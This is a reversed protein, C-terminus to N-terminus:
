KSCDTLKKCIDYTKLYATTHTALDQFQESYHFGIDGIDREANFRFYPFKQDAERGLYEHTSETDTAIGRLAKGMKLLAKVGPPINAMTSWMPIDLAASSLSSKILAFVSHQREVKIDIQSEDIGIVSIASKHGTGISLPCVKADKRPTRKGETM